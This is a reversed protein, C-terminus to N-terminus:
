MEEEGEPHKVGLFDHRISGCVRCWEHPIISKLNEAPTGSVAIAKIAEWQHSCEERIVFTDDGCETCAGINPNEKLPVIEQHKCESDDFPLIKSVSGHEGNMMHPNAEALSWVRVEDWSYVHFGHHETFIICWDSYEMTRGGVSVAGPGPSIAFFANEFFLFSGDEHRVALAGQFRPDDSRLESQFEAARERAEKLYRNM